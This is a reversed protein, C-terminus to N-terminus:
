VIEKHKTLYALARMLTALLVNALVPGKGLAIFDNDDHSDTRRLNCHWHGNPELAKGKIHISWGPITEDVLHIVDDSSVVESVGTESSKGSGALYSELVESLMSVTEKDLRDAEEVSRALSEFDKRM